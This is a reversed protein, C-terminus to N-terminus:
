SGIHPVKGNIFMIAPILAIHVLLVSLLLALNPQSGHPLDQGYTNVKGKRGIEGMTLWLCWSFAFYCLLPGASAGSGI